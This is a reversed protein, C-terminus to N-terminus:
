RPGGSSVRAAATTPALAAPSPVGPYAALDTAVQDGIDVGVTDDAVGNLVLSFVLPGGTKSSPFAPGAPPLVFGSLSSVNDLTGTKAEIRGQTTPGGLRDSLTGSVGAVPLGAAIVSNTGQHALADLLLQCTVRDDRDLGSGDLALLQSVPLGDVALDARIVAVGATTSGAGGFRAGLEKTLLEAGTDDSVRLITDIIESLPPSSISTVPVATPPTVAALPAGVVKVGDAVLLQEFQAAASVAPQASAVYRDGVLVSGDNVELASLPGVDGETTYDPKWTPVARQTDYRSEDGVVSGDIRTIGTARVQAALQTLSTYVPEPFPQDDVYAPTRLLPDGSGVLYLDGDIVGDVPASSAMVPTTYRFDVGLRDLAATATLIKMNSAPILEADPTKSALVRGHQTVLLCSSSAVSGVASRSLATALTSTLREDAATQALWVPLRRPSLLSTTLAPATAGTRGAGSTSTATSPASTSSASTPSASADAVGAPCLSVTLTCVATFGCLVASIRM